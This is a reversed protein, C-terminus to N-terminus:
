PQPDEHKALVADTKAYILKPDQDMLDNAKAELMLNAHHSLQDQAWRTVVESLAAYFTDFVASIGPEIATNEILDWAVIHGPGRVSETHDLIPIIQFSGGNIEFYRGGVMENESQFDEDRLKIDPPTVLVQTLLLSAQILLDPMDPTTSRKYDPTM